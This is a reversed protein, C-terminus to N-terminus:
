RHVEHAMGVLSRVKNATMSRDWQIMKCLGSLAPPWRQRGYPVFAVVPCGALKAGLLFDRWEEEDAWDPSLLLQSIGLDTLLLIVTGAYPYEFEGWRARLGLGAGRSPCGIFRQITVLETGVVECVRSELWRQDIAYPALAESKDVLLLVGRRLTPVVLRPLQELHDRRAIMQVLVELDVPGDDSATALAGSLIGRALAPALLPEFVPPIFKENGASPPLVQLNIQGTTTSGEIELSAPLWDIREEPEVAAAARKVPIVGAPGTTKPAVPPKGQPEVLSPEQKQPQEEVWEFGLMKGIEACTAENAPELIELARILDAIFM